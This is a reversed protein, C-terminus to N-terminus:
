LFIQFGASFYSRISFTSSEEPRFGMNFKNNIAIELAVNPGLFFAYGVAPIIAVSHYKTKQPGYYSEYNGMSFGYDVIGRVFIGIDFYKVLFVGLGLTTYNNTYDGFSSTFSISPTVGLAFGHAVFFGVSPNLSFSVNGSTTESEDSLESGYGFSGGGGLMMQGKEIPKESQALLGASIVLLLCIILQKM